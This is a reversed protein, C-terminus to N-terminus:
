PHYINDVINYVVGMQIKSINYIFWSNFWSNRCPMRPGNSFYLVSYLRSWLIHFPSCHPNIPTIHHSSIPFIPCRGETIQCISKSFSTKKQKIPKLPYHIDDPFPLGFVFGFCSRCDYAYSLTWPKFFAGSFLAFFGTLMIASPVRSKPLQSWFCPHGTGVVISCFIQWCQCWLVGVHLYIYCVLPAYRWWKMGLFIWWNYM